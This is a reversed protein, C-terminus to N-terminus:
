RRRDFSRSRSHVLMVCFSHDTQVALEDNQDPEPAVKDSEIDRALCAISKIPNLCLGSAEMPHLFCTEGTWSAQSESMDGILWSRKPFFGKSQRDRTSSRCAPRSGQQAHLPMEVIDITEARLVVCPPWSHGSLQVVVRPSRWDCGSFEEQRRRELGRECLGSKRLRRKCWPRGLALMQVHGDRRARLGDAFPPRKVTEARGIGGAM